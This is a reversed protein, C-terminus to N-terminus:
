KWDEGMARRVMRERRRAQSAAALDAIACIAWILLIGLTLV